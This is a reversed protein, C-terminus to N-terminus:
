PIYFADAPPTFSEIGYIPEGPTFRIQGLRSINDNAWYGGYHIYVRPNNIQFFDTLVIPPEGQSFSFTYPAGNIHLYLANGIKQLSLHTLGPYTESLVGFDAGDAYGISEWGDQLVKGIVAYTNQNADTNDFKEVKVMFHNQEHNASSISAQTEVESLVVAFYSYGSEQAGFTGAGMDVFYELTYDQSLSNFPNALSTSLFHKVDNGLLERSTAQLAGQSLLTSIDYGNEEPDVLTFTVGAVNAAPGSDTWYIVLGSDEIGAYVVSAPLQHTSFGGQRARAAAVFRRPTTM